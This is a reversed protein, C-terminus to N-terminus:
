WGKVGSGGVGINFLFPAKNYLNQLQLASVKYVSEVYLHFLVTQSKTLTRLIVCLGM